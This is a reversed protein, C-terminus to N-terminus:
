VHDLFVRAKHVSAILNPIEMALQTTTLGLREELNEPLELADETRHDIADLARTAAYLLDMTASREVSDDLTSYDRVTECVRSAIQWRRAILASVEHHNIGFARTEMEALADHDEASDALVQVYQEPNHLGLAIQGLNHLLGSLFAAESERGGRNLLQSLHRTIAAASVARRRMSGFPLGSENQRPLAGLAAVCLALHKTTNMGVFVLAQKVNEMPRQLGFFSSNVLKLIHGTLVPDSEVVNVLDRASAHINETIQCIETVSRPFAPLSMVLEEIDSRELAENISHPKM